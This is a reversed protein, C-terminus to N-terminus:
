DVSAMRSAIYVDLEEVHGAHGLMMKEHQDRRSQLEAITCQRIPVLVRDGDRKFPYAKQLFKLGPLVLNPDREDSPEYKGVAKRIIVALHQYTCGIYFDRDSGHIDSRSRIIENSLMSVSVIEDKSVKDDIRAHIEASVSDKTM